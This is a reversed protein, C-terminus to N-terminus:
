PEAWLFKPSIMDTEAIVPLEVAELAALVVLEVVEDVDALLAADESEEVTVENKLM